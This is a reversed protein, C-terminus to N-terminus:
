DPTLSPGLIRMGHQEAFKTRAEPSQNTLQAATRFYEEMTGAPQHMVILRATGESTKVFAHPMNRPILLSDGPQLHIVEEGTKFKFEGERVFFWEDCDIHLHLRPGVKAPRLTDFIVCRGENDKGSVKVQFTADLFQFPQNDRDAGSKVLLAKVSPPLVQAVVAGMSSRASAFLAAVLSFPFVIPPENHRPNNCACQELAVSNLFNWKPKLTRASAHAREANSKRHRNTSRLSARSSYTERLTILPAEIHTSVAPSNRASNQGPAPISPAESLNRPTSSKRRTSSRSPARSLPLM